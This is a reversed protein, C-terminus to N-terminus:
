EIEQGRMMELIEEVSGKISTIEDRMTSQKKVPKERPHHCEIEIGEYYGRVQICGLKVLRMIVGMPNRKHLECIDKIDMGRIVYEDRLTDDELATWITGSMNTLLFSYIM